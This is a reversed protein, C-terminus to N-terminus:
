LGCECKSTEGMEMKNRYLNNNARRRIMKRRAFFVLTTGFSQKYQM